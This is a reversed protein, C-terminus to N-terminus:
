PHQSGAQRRDAVRTIQSIVSAQCGTAQYVTPYRYIQRDARTCLVPLHSQSSYMAWINLQLSDSTAPTKEIGREPNVGRWNLKCSKLAQNYWGLTNVGQWNNDDQHLTFLDYVKSLLLSTHHHDAPFNEPRLCKRKGLLIRQINM